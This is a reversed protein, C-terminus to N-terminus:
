ENTVPVGIPGCAPVGIRRGIRPANPRLQQYDAVDIVQDHLRRLTSRHGVSVLTPRWPATLL